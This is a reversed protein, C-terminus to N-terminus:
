ARNRYYVRDYFPSNSEVAMTYANSYERIARHIQQQRDFYMIAPSAGMEAFLEDILADLLDYTTDRTVFGTEITM